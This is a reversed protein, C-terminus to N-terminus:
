EVIFQKMIHKHGTLDNPVMTYNFQGNEVLPFIPKTCTNNATNSVKSDKM